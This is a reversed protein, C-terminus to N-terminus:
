HGILGIGSGGSGGGSSRSGGGIGSLLGELAAGLLSAGLNDIYATVGVKLILFDNVQPRSYYEINNGSRQVHRFDLYSGPVQSTRWAVGVNLYVDDDLRFLAGAGLGLEIGNSGALTSDTSNIGDLKPQVTMYSSIGRYGMSLDVYPVIRGRDISSTARMTLDIGAYYSRFNVDANAGNPFLMPVEKFRKNDMQAFYVKTGFRICLRSPAEYGNSRRPAAIINIPGTYFGLDFGGGYYTRGTDNVSVPSIISIEALGQSFLKESFFFLLVPLFFLTAKKM